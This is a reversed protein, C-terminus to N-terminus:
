GESFMARGSDCGNLPSRSDNCASIALKKRLAECARYLAASSAGAGWSGGSGNSVPSNSDGLEVRIREIPLGLAEAAVQTLITYTGGGIDTMDSRVLAIGDARTSSRTVPFADSDRRGNRLRGALPRRAHERARRIATGMRFPARGRAHM